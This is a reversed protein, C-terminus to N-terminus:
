KTKKSFTRSSRKGTTVWEQTRLRFVAATSRWLSGGDVQIERDICAPRISTTRCSRGNLSSAGPEIEKLYSDVLDMPPLSSNDEEQAKSKTRKSEQSEAVPEMKGDGGRSTAAQSTAQSKSNPQTEKGEVAGTTEDDPYVCGGRTEAVPRRRSPASGKEYIIKFGSDSVSILENARLELERQRELKRAKALRAKYADFGIVGDQGEYIKRYIM